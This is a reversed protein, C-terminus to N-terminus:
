APVHGGIKAGTPDHLTHACNIETFYKSAERAQEEHIYGVKHTKRDTTNFSKIVWTPLKVKPTKPKRKPAVAKPAVKKAVVKRKVVKKAPKAKAKVKAKAKKAVPKRSKAVMKVKTKKAVPKKAAKKTTKM